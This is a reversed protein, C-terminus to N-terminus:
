HRTFCPGASVLLITHSAESKCFIINSILGYRCLRAQMRRGMGEGEGDWSGIKGGPWHNSSGQPGLSSDSSDSGSGGDGRGCQLVSRQAQACARHLSQSGRCSGPFTHTNIDQSYPEPLICSVWDLKFQLSVVFLHLETVFVAHTKVKLDPLGVELIFKSWLQLM